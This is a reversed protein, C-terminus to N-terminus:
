LTRATETPRKIARGTIGNFGPAVDIQEFDLKEFWSRFHKITVPRDYKPSLMDFLDLKAWTKYADKDMKYLRRYDPVLLYRNIWIGPKGLKSVITAVPWMLNVYLNVGSYLRENSIKCTIPRVYYKTWFFTRWTLRYIDVILQHGPKLVTRLSSLARYADPTHQLVGICLVKDFYNERFPLEFIDAQIILLNRNDGNNRYNAEVANSYDLSVVTANTKVLHETFRGSGSGAELIVEGTLDDNWNTQRALRDQSISGGSCSDYQTKHHLNWQYGFSAAYNDPPIFRPISNVIPFAAPCKVCALEGTELHQDDSDCEARPRNADASSEILQLNSKCKPCALLHVHNRHM